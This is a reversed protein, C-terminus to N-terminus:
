HKEKSRYFFPVESTAKALYPIKISVDDVAGGGGGAGIGNRHLSVIIFISLSNAYHKPFLRSNFHLNLM